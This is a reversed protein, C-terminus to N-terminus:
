AAGRDALTKLFTAKSADYTQIVECLDISGHNGIAAAAEGKACLESFNSFGLNLASGKLFHLCCELKDVPLGARLKEMADEVEELFLDVVEDFDEEGIDNRLEDVKTWDIM